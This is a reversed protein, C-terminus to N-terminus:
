NNINLLYNSSQMLIQLHDCYNAKRQQMVVRSFFRSCNKDGNMSAVFAFASKNRDSSDKYLDMGIIMLSKTQYKM